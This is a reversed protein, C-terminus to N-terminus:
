SRLRLQFPLADTNADIRQSNHPSFFSVDMVTRGSFFCSDTIACWDGRLLNLDVCDLNIFFCRQSCKCFIIVSKCLVACVDRHTLVM